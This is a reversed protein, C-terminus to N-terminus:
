RPLFLCLYVWNIMVAAGLLVWHRRELRLVRQQVFPLVPLLLIGIVMLPNFRTAGLLDLNALAAFCRTAGCTPCPIGTLNLFVCPWAVGTYLAQQALLVLVVAALVLLMASMPKPLKWNQAAENM